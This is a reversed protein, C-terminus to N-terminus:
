LKILKTVDQTLIDKLLGKNRDHASYLETRFEDSQRLEALSIVDQLPRTINHSITISPKIKSDVNLELRDFITGGTEASVETTLIYNTSLSTYFNQPIAQSTKNIILSLDIRSEKDVWLFDDIYHLSFATVFLDKQFNSVASICKIYNAYFEPWDVYDLRHYSIFNRKSDNNSQLVKSIKGKNFASFRFGGDKEIESVSSEIIGDKQKVHLQLNGVNEFHQFEGSLDAEILERFRSPKIIPNALFVSIVAERISHNGNIPRIKQELSM